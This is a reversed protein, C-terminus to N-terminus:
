SKFYFYLDFVKYSPNAIAMESVADVLYFSASFKSNQAVAINPEYQQASLIASTINFLESSM